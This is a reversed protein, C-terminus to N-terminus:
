LRRILQQLYAKRSPVMYSHVTKVMQHESVLVYKSYLINQKFLIIM